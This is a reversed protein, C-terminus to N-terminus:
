NGGMFCCRLCCWISCMKFAHCSMLKHSKTTKRLSVLFSSGWFLSSSSASDQSPPHCENPWSCRSYLFPGSPSKSLHFVTYVCLGSQVLKLSEQPMAMSMLKIDKDPSNGKKKIKNLKWKRVKKESDSGRQRRKWESIDNSCISSRAALCSLGRLFCFSFVKYCTHTHTPGFPPFGRAVSFWKACLM